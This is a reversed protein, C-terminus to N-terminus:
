RVGESERLKNALQISKLYEDFENYDVDIQKIKLFDFLCKTHNELIKNLMDTTVMTSYTNALTTWTNTNGNFVMTASADPSYALDGHIPKVSIDGLSNITINNKM